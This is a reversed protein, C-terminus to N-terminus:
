RKLMDILARTESWRAKAILAFVVGLTAPALALAVPPLVTIHTIVAGIMVGVLGLAALGALRPILLGIGGALECAGTLYRFWDGLGIKQFSEIVEPQMGMLKNAGAFIFLTALLAQATWLTISLARSRTVPAAAVASM